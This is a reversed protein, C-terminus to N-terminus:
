KKINTYTQKQIAMNLKSVVEKAVSDVDGVPKHIHVDGISYTINESHSGTNIKYDDRSASWASTKHQNDFQKSATNNMSTQMSMTTANGTGNAYAKIIDTSAGLKELWNIIDVSNLIGKKLSSTDVDAGKVEVNGNSKKVNETDGLVSEWVNSNSETAKPNLYNELIELLKNYFEQKATQEQELLEIQKDFKETELAKQEELAEIQKEVLLDDLNKQAEAVKETDPTYITEGNASYVKRTRQSAKELEQRAKEIDYEKQKEDNAKQLAEIESDYREEMASKEKEIADIKDDYFKDWKDQMNKLYDIETEIEDTLVGDLKDRYEQAQKELEQIAESNTAVGSQILDNIRTEIEALIERYCDRVYDFKEKTNLKTGDDAKSTDLTIEIQAERDEIRDNLYDDALQKRGEYVEEQYKWLDEEYGELGEYAKKAASELWDYYDQDEAMRGMAIEHQRRNYEDLFDTVQKPDESKGSGKDEEPKANEIESIAEAYIANEKMLAEIQAQIDSFDQGHAALSAAKLELEAIALANASKATIYQQKSLDKLKDENVTLRGNEWELCDAYEDGCKILELYTETSIHGQESQDTLAQTILDIKSAHDKLAEDIVIHVEPEIPNQKKWIELKRTAGKLGKDFLNPFRENFKDSLVIALDENSLESLWKDVDDDVKGSRTYGGYQDRNIYKERAKELNQYYTEYDPFKDVLLNELSKQTNTDNTASNLLGDRWANYNEQSVKELQNGDIKIYDNFAKKASESFGTEFVPQYTELDEKWSEQISQLYELLHSETITLNDDANMEAIIDLLTDYQEILNDGAVELYYEGNTGEIVKEFMKKYEESVENFDLGDIARAFFGSGTGFAGDADLNYASRRSLQTKAENFAQSNEGLWEVSNRENAKDIEDQLLEVGKARELNLAELKDKEFGYTDVLERKWENLEKTKEITSKDSNLIDDYKDIVNEMEEAQQKHANSMEIASARAEARMEEQKKNYTTIAAVIGGIILGGSIAWGVPNTALFAAMAKVSAWTSAALGKFYNSLTATSTSLGLQTTIAKIQTASLGEQALKTQLTAINVQKKSIVENQDGAVIGASLMIERATVENLGHATMANLATTQTLEKKKAILSTALLSQEIEEESVQNLALAEAIQAQSVGKTALALAQQKPTLNQVTLALLETQGTVDGTIVRLSALSQGYQIFNNRIDSNFM